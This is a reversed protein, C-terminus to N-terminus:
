LSDLRCRTCMCKTVAQVDAFGESVGLGVDQMEYVSSKYSVLLTFSKTVDM